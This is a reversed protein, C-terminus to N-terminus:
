AELARAEAADVLARAARALDAVLRAKTAARAGDARAAYREVLGAAAVLAALRGRLDHCLLRIAADKAALRAHHPTLGADGARRADLVNVLARDVRHLVAIAAQVGDRDGITGARAAYLPDLAEALAARLERAEETTLAM